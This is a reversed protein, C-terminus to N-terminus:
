IQMNENGYKKSGNQLLTECLLTNTVFWQVSEVNPRCERLPITDFIAHGGLPMCIDYTM